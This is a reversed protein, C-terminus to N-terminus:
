FGCRRSTSNTKDGGVWRVTSLLAAMYSPDVAQQQAEGQRRKPQRDASSCQACASGRGHFTRLAAM